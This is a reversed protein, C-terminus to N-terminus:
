RAQWIGLDERNFSDQIPIQLSNQVLYNITPAEGPAFIKAQLDDNFFNYLRTRERM